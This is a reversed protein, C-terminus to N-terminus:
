SRNASIQLSTSQLVSHGLSSQSNTDDRGAPCDIRIDLIFYAGKGGFGIAVLTKFQDKMRLAEEPRTVEGPRVSRPGLSEDFHRIIRFQIGDPKRTAPISGATKQTDGKLAQIV